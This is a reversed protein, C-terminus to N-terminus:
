TLRFSRVGPGEVSYGVEHSSVDLANRQDLWHDLWSWAVAVADYNLGERAKTLDRTYKRLERDINQLPTAMNVGQVVFAGVTPTPAVSM